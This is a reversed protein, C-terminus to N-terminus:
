LQVLRCAGFYPSGGASPKRTRLSRMGTGKRYHSGSFVLLGACCIWARIPFQLLGSSLVRRWCVKACADDRVSLRGDM